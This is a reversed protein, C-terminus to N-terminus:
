KLYTKIKPDNAKIARFLKINSENDIVMYRPVWDLDVFDSFPGDWGSPMFYHEGVIDYKKIGNKWSKQTKDMSLFLYTIDTNEKQLEKLDPLGVICDRCWSAWIDLLITKGKHTELISKLNVNEGDQNVFVANLAEESFSEPEPQAECNTICLCILV